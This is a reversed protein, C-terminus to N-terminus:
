KQTTYVTEGAVITELIPIDRIKVPDIQLPNDALVVFDALKGNAVHNM